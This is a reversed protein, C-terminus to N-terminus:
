TSIGITDVGVRYLGTNTDGSFGHSPAGASGDPALLPATFINTALQNLQAPTATVAANLNPFTNKLALKINRLHDDGQSKPDTAGVPNSQNLDSIYTVVELPM